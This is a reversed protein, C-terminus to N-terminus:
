PRSAAVDGGRSGPASTPRGSKRTRPAPAARPFAFTPSSDARVMRRRPGPGRLSAVLERWAIVPADRPWPTRPAEVPDRLILTATRYARDRAAGPRPLADFATAREAQCRNIRAAKFM